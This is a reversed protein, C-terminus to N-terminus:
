IRGNKKREEEETQEQCQKCLAAEPSAWLRSESIEEKCEPCIGYTGNNLRELAGLSAQFMREAAACQGAVVANHNFVEGREYRSNRKENFFEPPRSLFAELRKTNEKLYIGAMELLEKKM